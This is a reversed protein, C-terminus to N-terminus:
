FTITAGISPLIPLQYVKEMKVRDVYFINKRNYINTVSGTMQIETRDSLYFTKKINVDFRHYTPMRSTNINGLLYSLDGNVNKYDSEIGNQLPVKEYYGRTPTFPFGSGFNWRCSFEWNLDKGFTYSGLFNINHRRDFHPAYDKVVIESADNLFEGTRNVKGISYVFWLYFRKYDYKALFDVGYADGKEIIFDEKLIYPDMASLQDDDILKNRNLETMQTNLKYYGEINFNIRNTLDYEFGLIAHRSKQLASTVPEGNFEKQLDDPGTLFGYFLNVVDKDSNAAIFNQSYIGGAAKLRLKDNIKYKLGLRPEFSTESLSAYYQVRLGPEIILRGLNKKYVSYVGLESTNEVQGTHKGVSNVFEFDTKFGSIEVGYDLKDDGLFYTFTLGMNFGGVESKRPKNDASALEITYNSYALNATILASSGQPVLVVNSGIGFTTWSLDSIDEYGKVFDTFNFGFVNVKSGNKGNLSLKGYLDTFGFPLGNENAYTYLQKSTEKLYSTKLSGVWSLSLDNDEKAKILPGELLIKAGFTDGSLKGSLHKKNGDKTTIDMVSSIRGSYQANFGGTFVDANRIIDSDFVSFLGISHFPNYIVMGDLLVKNQIPSGGRIYLQGGQDGTFVVGPVVQLYQALDPQAGMTPLKSIQKPTVKTISAQISKKNEQREASVLFEELRISSEELFLKQTLMKNREIEIPVTLTDYGIYTITLIYNGPPVKSINYYGNVDTSAGITTGKLYVNTFIVPEGTKKEYVFGRVSGDQANATILVFVVVVFVVIKKM